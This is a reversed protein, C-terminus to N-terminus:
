DRGNKKEKYKRSEILLRIAEETNGSKLARGAQELLEYRKQKDALSM